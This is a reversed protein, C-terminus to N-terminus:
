SEETKLPKQPKENEKKSAKESLHIQRELLCYPALSLLLFAPLLVGAQPRLWFYFMASSAIIAIKWSYASRWRKRMMKLVSLDLKPSYRNLPISVTGKTRRVVYAGCFADVPFYKYMEWFTEFVNRVHLAFNNRLPRTALDNCLIFPTVLKSINRKVSVGFSIPKGFQDLVALGMFRKGLTGQLPSCETIVSYVLYIIPMLVLLFMGSYSGFFPLSMSFFFVSALISPVVLASYFFMAVLYPVITQGIACYKYLNWLQWPAGAFENPPNVQYAGFLILALLHCLVTIAAGDIVTAIARRIPAPKAEVTVALNPEKYQLSNLAALLEDATQYRDGAEKALCRMICAQLSLLVDDGSDKLAFPKPAEKVQQLIVKVSNIGAFPPQGTLAHYMVCGLSYIDSRLDQKEGRCQEPSMYFPSGILAGTHTLKTSDEGRYQLKAVGFDVLKVVEVGDASSTVFINGPKLDRHVIGKMHAHVLAECIQQFIGVARLPELKGERNLMDALTEGELYDMCLFPVNEHTLGHSYVAAINGHTMSCAAEAEDAFRRLAVAEGALESNMLKAAFTRGLEQDYVKYVSAM